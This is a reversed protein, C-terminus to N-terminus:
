EDAAASTYLLCYITGADAGGGGGGSLANADVQGPVTFNFQDTILKIADVVTDITDVSAQSSPLRVVQLFSRWTTWATSSISGDIAINVVDGNNLAPSLGTWEATYVGTDVKTITKAASTHSSLVIAPDNAIPWSDPDVHNGDSGVVTIVATLETGDSNFFAQVAM